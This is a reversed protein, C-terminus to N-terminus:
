FHMLFIYIIYQTKIKFALNLIIDNPTIKTHYIQDM